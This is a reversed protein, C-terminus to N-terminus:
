SCISRPEAPAIPKPLFFPVIPQELSQRYIDKAEAIKLTTLGGDQPHAPILTQCIM